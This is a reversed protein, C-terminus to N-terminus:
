PKVSRRIQTVNDGVVRLPVLLVLHKVLRKLQYTSAGDAGDHAFRFPKSASVYKSPVLSLQCRAPACAHFNFSLAEARIRELTQQDSRCGEYGNRPEPADIEARVGFCVGVVVQMDDRVEDPQRQQEALKRKDPVAIVRGM